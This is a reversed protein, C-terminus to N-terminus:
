CEFLFKTDRRPWTIDEINKELLNFILSSTLRLIDRFLGTEDRSIVSQLRRQDSPDCLHTSELEPFALITITEEDFLNLFLDFFDFHDRSM